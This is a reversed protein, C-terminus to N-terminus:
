GMVPRIDGIGREAQRSVCLPIILIPLYALVADTIPAFTGIDIGSRGSRLSHAAAITLAHASCDIHM